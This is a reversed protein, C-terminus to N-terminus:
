RHIKTIVFRINEGEKFDYKKSIKDPIMLALGEPQRKMKCTCKIEIM